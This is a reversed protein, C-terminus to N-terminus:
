ALLLSLLWSSLPLASNNCNFSWCTHSPHLRDVFHLPLPLMLTFSKLVTLIANAVSLRSATIAGDPL